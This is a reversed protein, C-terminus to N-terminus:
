VSLPEIYSPSSINSPTFSYQNPTESSIRSMVLLEPLTRLYLKMYPFHNELNRFLEPIKRCPIPFNRSPEPLNWLAGGQPGRVQFPGCPGLPPAAAWMPRGVYEYLPHERAQIPHVRRKIFTAILHVGNVEKGATKILSSVQSTLPTAENTERIDPRHSWSNKKKVVVGGRFPPVGYM